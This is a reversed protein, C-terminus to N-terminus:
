EYVWLILFHGQPFEKINGSLSMLVFLHSAQLRLFLPPLVVGFGLEELKLGIDKGGWWVAEEQHLNEVTLLTKIQALFLALGRSSM